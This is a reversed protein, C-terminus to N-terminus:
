RVLLTKRIQTFDGAKFTIFYIGSSVQSDFDDRGDWIVSHIGNPIIDNQLNRIIKGQINHVVLSVGSKKHLSYRINTSSNFPNPYNQHLSFSEPTKNANSPEEVSTLGEKLVVNDLYIDTTSNGCDFVLRANPDTPHNMTFSYTYTQKTTGLTVAKYGGYTTWPALQMAVYPIIHRPVDAYADFSVDYAKGKEILLNLQFVQVDYTNSGGDTISVTYEGNQVSGSASTASHAYFTWHNTGDSFDGNLLINDQNPAVTIYDIHTKTNPGCFGTVTMTVTYAGTYMYTHLPNIASSTGGDGFDWSRSTIDGSSQDTFQVILPAIGTTPSASFDAMIAAQQYERLRGDFLNEKQNDYYQDTPFLRNIPYRAIITPQFYYIAEWRDSETDWAGLGWNDDRHLMLGFTKGNDTIIEEFTSIFSYLNSYIPPFTECIIHDVYPLACIKDLRVGRQTGWPVWKHHSDVVFSPDVVEEYALSWDHLAFYVVGKFDPNLNNVEWVAKSIGGIWTEIYQSTVFDDWAAWVGTNKPITVLATGIEIEYPVNYGPFYKTKGAGNAVMSPSHVPFQSVLENNFTVSHDTCFQRWEELVADSYAPLEWYDIRRNNPHGPDNAYYLCDENFFYGSSYQSLPILFIQKYRDIFWNMAEPNMADFAPVKESSSLSYVSAPIIFGDHTMSCARFQSPFADNNFARMDNQLDASSLWLDIGKNKFVNAIAVCASIDHPHYYASGYEVGSVSHETLVRAISDAESITSICGWASINYTSVGQVLYYGCNVDNNGNPINEVRHVLDDKALTIGDLRNVLNYAQPIQASLYTSSFLTALFFVFYRHNVKM